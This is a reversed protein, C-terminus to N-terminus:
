IAEKQESNMAFDSLSGTVFINQKLIQNKM